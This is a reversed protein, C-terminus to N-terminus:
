GAAVSTGRFVPCGGSMREQALVEGAVFRFGYPLVTALGLGDLWSPHNAVVISPEHPLHDLGHM